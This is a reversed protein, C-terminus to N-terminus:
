RNIKCYPSRLASGAHFFDHDPLVDPMILRLWFQIDNLVSYTDVSFPM